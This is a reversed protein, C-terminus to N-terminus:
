YTRGASWIGTIRRGDCFYYTGYGDALGNKMEGIYLDGNPLRFTQYGNRAFDGCNVYVRGVPAATYPAPHPQAGPYATPAPAAAPAAGFTNLSQLAAAYEPHQAAVVAAAATMDDTDTASIKRVTLFCYFYLLGLLIYLMMSFFASEASCCFDYLGHVATPALLSLLLHRGPSTKAPGLIMGNSLLRQELAHVNTYIHWRSYHLGMIVAFFMHGPVSMFARLIATEWGFSLVYHINEYAAFGLSIFVAYIIGDFLSNFHKNKRTVLLLVAWKLGEEVLAVCLVNDILQYFYWAGGSLYYEGDSEAAFAGFIGSNMESLVTEILGAPLCIAAGLVLLLVLLGIPEKDARDKRYVYICLAAAPVLAFIVLLIDNLSM